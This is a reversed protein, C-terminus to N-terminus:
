IFEVVFVAQSGQDAIVSFVGTYNEEFYTGGGPVEIGTAATATAGFTIYVSRNGRNQFTAATRAPNAALLTSSTTTATVVVASGPVRDEKPPATFGTTLSAM